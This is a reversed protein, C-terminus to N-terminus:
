GGVERLQISGFRQDGALLDSVIVLRDGTEVLGRRLLEGEAAAVTREPDQDLALL